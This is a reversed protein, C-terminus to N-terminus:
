EATRTLRFGNILSATSPDYDYRNSVRCNYADYGWNGGRRIREIGSEPGLPNTQADATYGSYWDWCWEWLNGSMDYIGLQNPLKTGVEHTTPGSNSDYWAYDGLNDTTGSYKYNDTHNVGGRAAYEWEAETPLRYGNKSFDWSIDTGNITYCPDLGQSNSLANCYEVVSYWSVYYVPYNPGVGYDHSPNSGMVSEWEGQTVECKGMYFNSVTVDHLPLEDSDGENFHDGMSFTGGQVFIMERSEISVSIIDTRTENDSTDIAKVYLNVTGSLGITNWSYSYPSSIDEYQQEGIYFIVKKVAENDTAEATILIEEAQPLVLDNTPYTLQIEPVTSDNPGTSDDSCSTMILLFSIVIIAFFIVTKKKM